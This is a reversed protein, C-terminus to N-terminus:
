ILLEFAGAVLAIALIAAVIVLVGLVLIGAFGFGAVAALYKRWGHLEKGNLTVTLGGDTTM